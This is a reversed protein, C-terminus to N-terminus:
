YKFESNYVQLFADNKSKVAYRYAQLLSAPNYSTVDTNIALYNMGDLVYRHPQTSMALYLLPYEPIYDLHKTCIGYFDDDHGITQFTNRNPRADIYETTSNGWPCVWTEKIYNAHLDVNNWMVLERAINVYGHDLAWVFTDHLRATKGQFASNAEHVEMLKNYGAVAANHYINKLEVSHGYAYSITNVKYAISGFIAIMAVIAAIMTAVTNPAM